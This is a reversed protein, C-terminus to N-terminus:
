RYAPVPFGDHQRSAQRWFEPLPMGLLEAARSESIIHEVMAPMVLREMRNTKEPPYPDGPELKHWNKSRFLKYMKVALISSIIELDQARHIWAQMSMGYKHKLLHLEYLDLRQRRIGLERRVAPAPALFAGAFCYAAKEAQDDTWNSPIDLIIHSLEHAINFRQRDGPVGEKVVIVPLTDNACLTLADFDDAGQVL